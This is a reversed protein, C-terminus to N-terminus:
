FGLDENVLLVHVNRKSFPPERHLVLLKSLFTGQAGREKMRADELPMVHETLRRYTEPFDTTIKKTSM